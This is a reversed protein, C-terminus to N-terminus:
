ELKAELAAVRAALAENDARIRELQLIVSDTAPTEVTVTPLAVSRKPWFTKAVAFVFLALLVMQALLTQWTPYLGLAEVTPFGHITSIPVANGEQLEKIGKGTFVFAMYYLLVSTVSFFPRLPIRVGFRYFLTFIVALGAFGTVIGLSIPLVVHAGENFLAQYFLATEAGERYVALFAVFALARGGGHELANNVKERIFAQWKAAEVRSILWYSVSFLVAVAVLLTLGEIIEQSAPIASLVTRLVVATLGSAVLALVIGMWISRLRERHGTKLLFAVVAGVVLIAEFGERMIILLSQFFAESASGTPRTLELVRGMNIEIADRAREAGHIDNGRIAGKFDAFLREMTSVVGPNRARAPTEIPEFAIYADFARDGAESLRGNRAATLSQELLSLAANAAARTSGSDPGAASAAVTHARMPLTRLYAVVSRVQAPTMTSSPPMPTGPMGASVAVALQSDSREAQWAFSGLEPPLKTLSRAMPGDGTASVGHCEACAQTYLGEGEAVEHPSSRLSGLYMVINWRQEATLKSSFSPMATGLVGVSVKRFMTAPTVSAMTSATGISPPKPNLTAAAPGDGLGRPGHCSVCNAQYLREGAAVDIPNRPLELAAESGLTAAFRTNMPEILAPPKKAAMAAVISDLIARAAAVRDGPLRAAAERADNLFGVAEQYEDASILRGKDDVGKKYEEVAVSVINAVRGIPHEDQAALRSSLGALAIVAVFRGLKARFNM